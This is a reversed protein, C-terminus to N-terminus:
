QKADVAFFCNPGMRRRLIGCRGCGGARYQEDGYPAWFAPSIAARVAHQSLINWHPVDTFGAPFQGNGCTCLFRKNNEVSLPIKASSVYECSDLHEWTRCREIYAPLVYKWLQFTAEDVWIDRYEILASSFPGPLPATPLHLVACDLVVTRNALDMRMSSPIILMSDSGDNRNRLFFVRDTATSNEGIRTM